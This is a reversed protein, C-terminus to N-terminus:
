KGSAIPKARAACAEEIMEGFRDYFGTRKLESDGLGIYRDNLAKINAETDEWVEIFAYSYESPKMEGLPDLRYINASICGPIKRYIPVALEDFLRSLENADVDSKLNFQFDIICM